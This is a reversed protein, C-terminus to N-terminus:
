LINRNQLNHYTNKMKDTEEHYYKICEKAHFTDLDLKDLKSKYNKIDRKIGVIEKVDM